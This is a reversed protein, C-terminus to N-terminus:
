RSHKERLQINGTYLDWNFNLGEEGLLSKMGDLANKDRGLEWTM